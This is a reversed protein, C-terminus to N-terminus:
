LNLSQPISAIAFRQKGSLDSVVQPEAFGCARLTDVVMEACLPNIELYLAGNATLREAAFACIPRYFRMADGDPVFLAAHPEYDLVNADMTEKESELVYPPNSVIVDYHGGIDLSLVDAQVFNISVNNYVANRAATELAAASVDVATVTADPFRKALAIAICGSGTCLDLLSHHVIFPSHHIVLDTLEETEPRPILVSPNVKLPISCFDTEGFIYQLPEFRKMRSIIAEIDAQQESTLARDSLLVQEAPTLRCVKELILRCDALVEGSPYLGSLSQVIFAKIEKLIM